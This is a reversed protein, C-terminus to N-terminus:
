SMPDHEHAIDLQRSAAVLIDAALWGAFPL